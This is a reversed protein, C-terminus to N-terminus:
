APKRLLQPSSPLNVIRRALDTAVPLPMSVCDRYMPLSNLL